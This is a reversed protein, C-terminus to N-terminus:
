ARYSRRHSKLFEVDSPLILSPESMDGLYVHENAINAYSACASFPLGVRGHNTILELASIFIYKFSLTVDGEQPLTDNPAFYSKTAHMDSRLSHLQWPM